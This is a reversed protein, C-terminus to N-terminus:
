VPTPVPVLRVMRVGGSPNVLLEMNKGRSIVGLKKADDFLDYIAYKNALRPSPPLIDNLNYSIYVPSGLARINFYAVAFHDEAMPKVWVEVDTRRNIVVRKGLAGLPDQNVKILHKNLLIERMEPRLQRLDNSMYLPASFLAWWAMQARSQEYSLGYNGIVLMDPDFFAGPGQNSAFEDQNNAMYDVVRLITGWSDTVDFFNRILNCNSAMATYNPKIGEELQYLPWECSYLIDRGSKALEEGFAPFQWDFERTHDGMYCGDVKLSDIGWEAFTQADVAFLEASGNWFGPYGGCTKSGMDGYLGLKLGKSHVYDALAKIGSPFRQKNAELRNTLPHRELESWCDDINVYEYGLEKFGDEVLRDAM